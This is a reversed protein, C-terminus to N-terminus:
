PAVEPFPLDSGDSAVYMTVSKVIEDYKMQDPDIVPNINDITCAINIDGAAYRVTKSPRGKIANLDVEQEGCTRGDYYSEITGGVDGALGRLAYTRKVTRTSGFVEMRVTNEGWALGNQEGTFSFHEGTDPDFVWAGELITRVPVTPGRGGAVGNQIASVSYEVDVNPPCSWDRYTWVPQGDDTASIRDIVTDDRYILWEDPLSSRFFTLDVWPRVGVQGAVLNQVAGVPGPQFVTTFVAEKYGPDGPSATRAVADTVRLRYSIVSGPKAAGKPPTYTSDNGPEWETDNVVKGGVTTTLWWKAQGPFSWVVAPTPDTTTALPSTVTLAAYEDRTVTVPDSWDSAAATATQRVRVDVSAGDAMGAWGLDATNIQPVTMPLVGSDWLPTTFDGDVVDIQLQASSLSSPAEWQFTPAALSTVGHPRLGIPTVALESLVVILQPAYASETGYLGWQTTYTSTLRFGYYPDGLVIARMDETVDFDRVQVAANQTVTHPKSGALVGPQNNYTTSLYSSAPLAAHRQLTTSRTGTAAYMRVRIIASLVEQGELDAPLDPRFFSRYATAGNTAVYMAKKAVSAYRTSAVPATKNSVYTGSIM